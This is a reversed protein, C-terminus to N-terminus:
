PVAGKFPRQGQNALLKVSKAFDWPTPSCVTDAVNGQMPIEWVVDPNKILVDEKSVRFYSKNVHGFIIM